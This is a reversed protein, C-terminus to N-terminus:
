AEKAFCPFNNNIYYIDPLYISIANIRLYERSISRRLLGTIPLYVFYNFGILGFAIRTIAFIRRNYLHLFLLQKTEAMLEIGAVSKDIINQLKSRSCLHPFYQPITSLIRITPNTERRRKILLGAERLNRSQIPRSTICHNQSSLPRLVQLLQFHIPSAPLSNAQSAHRALVIWSDTRFMAADNTRQWSSTPLIHAPLM